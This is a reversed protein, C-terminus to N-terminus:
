HAAVKGITEEPMQRVGKSDVVFVIVGKGGSYIDRRKGAEVARVALAIAEKEGMKEKFGLDLATLAPETGSGSIAYTKRELVAGYPTVDFLAPKANFGGIIFQVIFPYYRSSNLVNSLLTAAAKASMKEGRELEYVKAQSRLFRIITLSDGVNGANTLAVEENIKYIKESDEEYAIHGMSALKDSALVVGGDFILGVTTTGTKIDQIQSM